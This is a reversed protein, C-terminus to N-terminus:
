LILEKVPMPMCEEEATIEAGRIVDAMSMSEDGKGPALVKAVSMPLCGEEATDGKRGVEADREGFGSGIVDEAGVIARSVARDAKDLMVPGVEETMAEDGKRGEVVPVFVKAVPMPMCEGEVADGEVVDDSARDIPENNDEVEAARVLAGVTRDVEDGKRRAPVCSRAVPM